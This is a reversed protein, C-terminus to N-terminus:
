TRASLYAHSSKLMNNNMIRCYYTIFDVYILM